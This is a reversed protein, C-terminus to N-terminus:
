TDWCEQESQPVSSSMPEEDYPDNNISGGSDDTEEILIFDNKVEKKHKRLLEALIERTAGLHELRPLLEAISIKYMYNDHDYYDDNRTCRNLEYQIESWIKEEKTRTDVYYPFDVTHLTKYTEATAPIFEATLPEALPMGLMDKRVFIAIQSVYGVSEYGAPPEGVGLLSFMYNPYKEIISLCWSKFEERSWEFKHDLHRFGNPLLPNFRTFITNYDSNPTSFVVLKPQMFGFVNSPIKALVDDYVHEIRYFIYTHRIIYTYQM